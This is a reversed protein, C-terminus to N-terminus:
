FSVTGNTFVGTYTIGSSSKTYSFPRSLYDSAFTVAAVTSGNVNIIMTQPAGTISQLATYRFIDNLSANFTIGNASVSTNSMTLQNAFAPAPSPTPTPPPPPVPVCNKCRVTLLDIIKPCITSQPPTLSVEIIAFLNNRDIQSLPTGPPLFTSYDTVGLDNDFRIVSVINNQQQSSVITGSAPNPTVKWNSSLVKLEYSYPFGINLGSIDPSFYYYNGSTSDLTIQSILDVSPCNNYPMALLTGVYPISLPFTTDVKSIFYYSKLPDLFRLSSRNDPTGNTKYFVPITGNETQTGYITNISNIFTTYTTNSSLPAPANFLPLPNSGLYTKISFLNDIIM